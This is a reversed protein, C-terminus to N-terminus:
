RRGRPSPVPLATGAGIRGAQAAEPQVGEGPTCRVGAGESPRLLMPPDWPVVCGDDDRWRVSGCRFCVAVGHGTGDEFEMSTECDLEGDKEGHDCTLGAALGGLM